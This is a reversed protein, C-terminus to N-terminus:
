SNFHRIFGRYGCKYCPKCKELRCYWNPNETVESFSQWQCCHNNASNISYSNLECKKCCRKGCEICVLLKEEDRCLFCEHFTEDLCCSVDAFRLIKSM